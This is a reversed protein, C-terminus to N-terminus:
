LIKGKTRASSLCRFNVGLYCVDSAIMYAPNKHINVLFKDIFQINTFM